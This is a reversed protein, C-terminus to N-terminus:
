RRRKRLSIVEETVPEQGAKLHNRRLLNKLRVGYVQSIYHMTEGPGVKHITNGRLAKRHKKQIYIIENKQPQYGAPLDNFQYLSWTKLDFEEALLEFTDGERAAVSRLKNHIVIKHSKHPDINILNGIEGIRTKADETVSLQDFDIGRDLAYLKFDVIIKILRQAYDPATAYGAAKLGHAWAVYDDPALSFLSAYRPSGTLFDSHDIYSEEITRYKRFCENREDDDWKVSNGTWNSKCKIGFHNNSLKSLESNGNGSELCAQALKISAPIGTRKMEKVALSQFKDIYQQRSMTQSFTALALSSFLAFLLLKM